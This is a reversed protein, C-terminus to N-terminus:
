ADANARARIDVTMPVLTWAPMFGAILSVRRSYVIPSRYGGFEFCDAEPARGKIGRAHSGDFVLLLARLSLIRM